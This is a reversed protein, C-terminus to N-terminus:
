KQKGYLRKALRSNSEKLGWIRMCGMHLLHHIEGDRLRRSEKNVRPPRLAKCQLNKDVSILGCDKPINDDDSLYEPVAFFFRRILKSRHAQWKKLDAKIDSRSVKIEVETAYGSPSVSFLDCEYNLGLGWFVNPVIINVRAGLYRAVAVEVDAANLKYGDDFSNRPM